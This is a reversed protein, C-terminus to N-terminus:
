RWFENDDWDDGSDWYSAEFIVDVDIGAATINNLVDKIEDYRSSFDNSLNVQIKGPNIERVDIGVTDVGLYSAIYSIIYQKTGSGLRIQMATQLVYRYSDDTQNLLRGIGIFKGINDLSIGIAYAVQHSRHVDSLAVYVDDFENSIVDIIRERNSNM